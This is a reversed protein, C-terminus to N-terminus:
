TLYDLHKFLFYIFNQIMTDIIDNSKISFTDQQEIM